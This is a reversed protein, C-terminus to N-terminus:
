FHLALVLLTKPFLVLATVIAAALATDSLQWRPGTSTRAEIRPWADAPTAGALVPPVASQLLRQLQEDNM